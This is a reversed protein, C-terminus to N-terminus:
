GGVGWGGWWWWPGWKTSMWLFTIITRAEKNTSLYNILYSRAGVVMDRDTLFHIPARNWCGTQSM